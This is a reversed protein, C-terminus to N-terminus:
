EPFGWKYVPNDILWFCLGCNVSNKFLRQEKQLGRTVERNPTFLGNSVYYLNVGETTQATFDEDDDFHVQSLYINKQEKIEM